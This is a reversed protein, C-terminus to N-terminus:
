VAVPPTGNLHFHDNGALINGTKFEVKISCVTLLTCNELGAPTLDCQM